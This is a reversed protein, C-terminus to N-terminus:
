AAGEATVTQNSARAAYRACRGRGNAIKNGRGAKWRWPPPGPAAPQDAIGDLAKARVRKRAAAMGANLSQKETQKALNGAAGASRPRVSRRPSAERWSHAPEKPANSRVWPPQRRRPARKQLRSKRKGDTRLASHSSRWSCCVLRWHEWRLVPGLEVLLNRWMAFRPLSLEPTALAIVM